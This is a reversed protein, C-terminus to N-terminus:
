KNWFGEERLSLYRNHGIILHDLLEIGMLEGCEILRRTFSLDQQSPKPNGSPHNHVVILRAASVRVAGKFIERPHAVSQNLSGIFLTEKKIIENKTNLYLCLLHEQQYDKLEEMLQSALEVSSRITGLKPQLAKQIRSGLEIATLIEIAKVEGIGPFTMLEEKTAFKLEFLNPYQQLIRASLDLVNLQGSGTRLLIALLEQNSLAEAGYQLLRERPRSTAPLSETLRPM